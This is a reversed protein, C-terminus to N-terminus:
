QTSPPLPVIVETGPPLRLLECAARLASSGSNLAIAEPVGLYAKFAQELAMVRAGNTHSGTEVNEYVVEAVEKLLDDLRSLM